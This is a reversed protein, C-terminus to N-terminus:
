AACAPPHVHSPHPRNSASPNPPHPNTKTHPLPRDPINRRIPALERFRLNAPSPAPHPFPPSLPFRRVPNTTSAPIPASETARPPPSAATEAATRFDPTRNSNPAIPAIGTLVRSDRIPAPL